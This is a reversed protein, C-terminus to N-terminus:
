SIPDQVNEGSDEFQDEQDLAMADPERQISYSRQESSQALIASNSLKQNSLVGLFHEIFQPFYWAKGIKLSELKGNIDFEPIFVM